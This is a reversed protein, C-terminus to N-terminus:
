WQQETTKIFPDIDSSNYIECLKKKQNETM